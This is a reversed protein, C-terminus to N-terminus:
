AQSISRRNALPHEAVALRQLLWNGSRIEVQRYEEGGHHSNGARSGPSRRRDARIKRAASYILKWYTDFFEQLRRQDGWDALREVLSRRTGILGSNKM